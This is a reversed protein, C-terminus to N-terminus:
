VAGRRRRDNPIQLNMRSAVVKSIPIGVLTSAEIAQLIEHAERSRVETAIGELAPKLDDLTGVYVIKAEAQAIDEISRRRFYGL